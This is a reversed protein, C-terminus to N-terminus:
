TQIERVLHGVHRLVQGLLFNGNLRARCDGSEKSVSDKLIPTANISNFFSIKFMMGHFKNLLVFDLLGVKPSLLHIRKCSPNGTLRHLQGNEVFFLNVSMFEEHPPQENRTGNADGMVFTGPEVLIYRGGFDDDFYPRDDAM